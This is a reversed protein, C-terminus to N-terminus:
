QPLALWAREAALRRRGREGSPTLPSAEDVWGGQRDGYVGTTSLYGIWQLQGAARAIAKGHMDLVPDGTEDPPVSSLLHTATALRRDIDAIPRDRDFTVIELGLEKAADAHSQDRCTGTVRWGQEALVRALALATYGLGFCFLHSQQTM